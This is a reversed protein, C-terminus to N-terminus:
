ARRRAARELHALMQRRHAIEAPTLPRVREAQEFPLSRQAWADQRAKTQESAARFCEFCLSRGHGHACRTTKGRAM